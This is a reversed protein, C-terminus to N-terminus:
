TKSHRALLLSANPVWPILQVQRPNM